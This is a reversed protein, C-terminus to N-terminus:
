ACSKCRSASGRYATLNKAFLSVSKTEGCCRCEKEVDNELDYERFVINQTKAFAVRKSKCGPCTHDLGDKTGKNKHFNSTEFVEQCCKCRKKGDKAVYDSYGRDVVLGRNMREDEDLASGFTTRSYGEVTDRPTVIRKVVRASIETDLVMEVNGDRADLYDKETVNGFLFAMVLSSDVAKKETKTLGSREASELAIIDDTRRNTRSM